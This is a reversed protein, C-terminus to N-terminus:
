PYHEVLSHSGLSFCHTWSSPSGPSFTNSLQRSCLLVWVQGESHSEWFSYSESGHAWPFPHSNICRTQQESSLIRGPPTNIGMRAKYEPHVCISVSIKEGAKTHFAFCQSCSAHHPLPVLTVSSCWVQLLQDSDVSLWDDSLHSLFFCTCSHHM